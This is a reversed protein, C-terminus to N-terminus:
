PLLHRGVLPLAKLVPLPVGLKHPGHSGYKFQEVAPSLLPTAFLDGKGAADPPNCQESLAVPATEPTCSQAFANGVDAGYCATVQQTALECDGSQEACAGVVLVVAVMLKSM